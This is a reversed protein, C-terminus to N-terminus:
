GFIAVDDPGIDHKAIRDWRRHIMVPGGWIRFANWYRDDKFGIYHVCRPPLM